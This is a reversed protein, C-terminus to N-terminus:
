RFVLDRNVFVRIEEGQPVRIVPPLDLYKEMVGRTQEGASGALSGAFNGGGGAGGNAGGGVNITTGNGSPDGGGISNALLSPAVTIASIAAAVGFKALYRNDVNGLTGSRGLRDTGASGLAVSKGDPTVARNWAILVRKQIFDVDHNFQGILITGQPMLIRAGDFSFVPQTVQARLYGPLQTDIATELVASIITGQVVVRSPDPLDTSVSTQVASAAASKLFKENNGLDRDAGGENAEDLAALAGGAEDVVVSQSQRKAKELARLENAESTRLKAEAEQKRRLEEEQIAEERLRANEEALVKTQAELKATMTQTYRTLIQQVESSSLGTQKNRGIEAIQSEIAKFKDNLVLNPDIGKAEPLPKAPVIFDLDATNNHDKSVELSIQSTQQDANERGFIRKLSGGSVVLTFVLLGSGIVGASLIFKKNFGRAEQQRRRRANIVEERDSAIRNAIDHGYPRDAHDQNDDIVM